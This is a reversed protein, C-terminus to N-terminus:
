DVSLCTGDLNVVIQTSGKKLEVVKRWCGPTLRCFNAVLGIVAVGEERPIPVRVEGAGPIVTHDQVAIRDDGLVKRDNEWLAGFDAEVFTDASRLSYIRLIVAHSGSEDCSNLRPSSTIDVRDTTGACGALAAVALLLPGVRVFTRPVAPM